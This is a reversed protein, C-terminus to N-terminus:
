LSGTVSFNLSTINDPARKFDFIVLDNGQDGFPHGTATVLSAGVGLQKLIQYSLSLSSVLRDSQSRGATAHTSSFEDTPLARVGFTNFISIGLALNLGDLIAWRVNFGNQVYFSSAGAGPLYVEAGRRESEFGFDPNEDRGQRCTDPDEFDDCDLTSTATLNFFKGFGLTYSFSVPGVPISATFSPKLTFLRNQFQSALSTPLSVSLGGALNFGSDEHKYISGHALGLNIDSLLFSHEKLPTAFDLVQFWTLSLSASVSLKDAIQYSASPSLSTSVSAQRQPDGVFTGLGISTEVSVSARWPRTDDDV